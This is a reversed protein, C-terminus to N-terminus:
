PATNLSTSLPRRELIGRWLSLKRCSKEKSFGGRYNVLDAAQQYHPFAEAVQGSLIHWRGYLWELHFRTRREPDHEAALRTLEELEIKSKAQDGAAKQTTRKLRKHLMLTPMKLASFRKGSEHVALSLTKGIDFAPMGLLLHRGIFPRFPIPSKKELWTLARAIVIWRRLNAAVEKQSPTGHESLADVFLKISPLDPLQTGKDWRVIMERSNKDTGTTTPFATKGLPHENDCDAWALVVSIPRRDPDLLEM